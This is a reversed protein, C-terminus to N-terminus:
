RREPQEPIIVTWRFTRLSRRKIATTILAGLMDDRSAQSDGAGGAVPPSGIDRAGEISQAFWHRADREETASFPVVSIMIKLEARGGGELTQANTVSWQLAEWWKVLSDFTALKEGTKQGDAFLSVFYVEDWPEFRVELRAHKELRARPIAFDFLFTVTLGTQLVRHVEPDLLVRSPIRLRLSGDGWSLEPSAAVAPRSSESLKGLLLLAAFIV